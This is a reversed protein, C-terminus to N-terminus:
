SGFKQGVLKESLKWLAEASEKNTAYARPQAVKNEVLFSGSAGRLSPDLVAVLITAAGQSLTRTYQPPLPKGGNRQVALKHADAFMAEDVGSNPLLRTEMIVGPHVAFVAVGKNALRKALAVTFLINATKSQGYAAWPNYTKGNQFNPDVLNPDGLQYGLSSVNIITAGQGAALIEKMLLNTLLFHGVHNVAFQSEIGDKSKVFNRVAMVGANNILVDLKPAISKIQKAANRVSQNDLLDINVFSVQVAPKTTKIKEIVPNVKDKTRGALIIHKPNATAIATATEAGLGSRSAGTILVTKGRVRNGLKEVVEAANTDLNFTSM